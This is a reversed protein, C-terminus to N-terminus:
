TMVRSVKPEVSRTFTSIYRKKNTVHGRCWLTVLTQPRPGRMGFGWAGLNPTWLDLPVPFLPIQRILELELASTGIGRNVFPRKLYHGIFWYTRWLIVCQVHSSYGLRVIAYINEKIASCVARDVKIWNIKMWNDLYNNWLKLKMM